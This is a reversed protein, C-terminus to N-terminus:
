KILLQKVDARKWFSHQLASLRTGLSPKEKIAFLTDMRGRFAPVAFNGELV